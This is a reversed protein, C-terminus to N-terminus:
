NKVKGSVEGVAYSWASDGLWGELNVVTDITILDGSKLKYKGPFGHCIEDNVSTCTAYPYGMYGIQEPIGGQDRIFKEAIDNLEMTTIGPQVFPKIHKHCKAVVKCAEHIKEIEKM